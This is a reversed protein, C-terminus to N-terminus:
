SPWRKQGSGATLKRITSEDPVREGLSIRCFRRLHISDSAEAVLTRFGWGYRQKLVMLRVYIEMAMTPRGDTLGARGTRAVESRRYAVIPALLEADSLLRDLAALDEPLERVAVPLGDDWLSEAAAAWLTLV